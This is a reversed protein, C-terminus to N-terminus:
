ERATWARFRQAVATFPMGDFGPACDLRISAEGLQLLTKTRDKMTLFHFGIGDHRHESSIPEGDRIPRPDTVHRVIAQIMASRSILSLFDSSAVLQGAPFLTTMTRDKPQSRNVFASHDATATLVFPLTHFLIRTFRDPMARLRNFTLPQARSSPARFTRAHTGKVALTAFGESCDPSRGTGAPSVVGSALSPGIAKSM